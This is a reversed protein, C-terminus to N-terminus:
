RNEAIKIEKEFPLPETKPVRKGRDRSVPWIYRGRFWINLGPNISGKPGFYIGFFLDRQTLRVKM